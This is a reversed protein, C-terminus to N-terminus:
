NAALKPGWEEQADKKEELVAKAVPLSELVIQAILVLQPPPLSELDLKTALVRKPPPPSELDIKAVLGGELLERVISTLSKMINIPLSVSGDDGGKGKDM